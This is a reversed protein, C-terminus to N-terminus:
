RRLSQLNPVRGVRQQLVHTLEHVRRGPPGSGRKAQLSLHPELEPPASGTTPYPVPVAGAAVKDMERETLTELKEVAGEPSHGQSLKDALEIPAGIAMSVLGVYFTAFLTTKVM